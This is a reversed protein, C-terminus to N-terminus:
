GKLREEAFGKVRGLFWCLGKCWDSPLGLSCLAVASSLIDKYVTNLESVISEVIRYKKMLRLLDEENAQRLLAQDRKNAIAYLTAVALNKRNSLLDLNLSGKHNKLQEPNGYAELDNLGQFLYGCQDGIKKFANEVQENRKDGVGVYYGLLFSNSIISSTELQAIERVKNRNFYDSPELRLEELAGQAMDSIIKILTDICIYYHHPLIISPSFVNELRRMSLGIMNLALLVTYHPGYEVHFSPQGHREKDNDIWDDLLLSAKHIMEISVAVNAITDFDHSCFEDPQVTALYGWLCIQPRLRNGIIMQAQQTCIEKLIEDWFSEFSRLFRTTITNYVNEINEM